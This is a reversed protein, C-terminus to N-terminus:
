AGPRPLPALEDSGLARTASVADRTPLLLRHVQPGGSATRGEPTTARCRSFAPFPLCIAQRPLYHGRIGAEIGSSHM